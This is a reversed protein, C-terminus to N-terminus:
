ADEEGGLITLADKHAISNIMRRPTEEDVHCVDRYDCYKCVDNYPSQSSEAKAPAIPIRGEHLDVAMEALIAEVKKMLLAMQAFSILTGSCIGNKIKAPIRKGDCARDMGYVVRSDDLVMGSMRTKKQKETLLKSSDTDRESEIQPANVPMYLVGAPKINRYDRFGNKWIAFLYILMQMNLGSYVENLYFNKGGSKYDVVRVFTDDDTEMVDVRDVSGKLRLMGGDPLAIDYTPIEGDRDIKLEFAAPKFESVSFESVLRDVVECAILGLQSFLYEFREGLEDGVEMNEEFYETLIERVRRDREAKDMAVLAESGYASILKELTYHLATGRQMPDLEATMRALANLGYKCFYEFPCKYYVEVRSASMYMDNGFLERSVAKDCIEMSVGDVGRRLAALRDAYEERGSFYAELATHLEGGQQNLSAMLEFSPQAGQVLELKDMTETDTVSLKPFIREIQSIIESKSIDSGKIDKRAYTVYLKESASCLTSYAIFREESMEEEISDDAKLDYEALTKIDGATLIGSYSPVIPFVGDNVGVAFVVKPATTKVRDASGIIIEDLGQPINGITYTSFVLNLLDAFRATKMKVDGMVSAFNDIVEIVIDWIRGQQAALETEGMDDLRVALKKLNDAADFECLLQYIATAAKLGDTERLRTRLNQLPAVARMRIDNIRGLRLADRENMRRGLGDPHAAWTDLWRSGNIRWMLAYNELGSIEDRSIDTLGTKLVRMVSDISFGRVAIDVAGCLFEVLPQSSVPQRRDEFVPLGNKKLDSRIQRAYDKESRSIIAIDRCRLGETRILRKVEAAVFACEAEFSEASVVRISEPEGVYPEPREAYLSKELTYLDPTAFRRDNADILEPAAAKVGAKAAIRLLRRMSRRTHSFAEFGGDERLGDCCLTIYVDEARMLIAKIINLEQDTFGRFGDIYVNKGDFWGSEEILPYLKDLASQNDFFRQEAIATYADFILALDGLKDKLLCQELRGATDRLMDTSVRAQRLRGILELMMAIITPSHRHRGYVALSDNVEELALSMLMTRTSDDLEKNTNIGYEGLLKGALFSFSLVETKDAHKAGLLELMQKETQFSYQEPVIIVADAYREAREKIRNYVATTKGSGIRGLILRLM